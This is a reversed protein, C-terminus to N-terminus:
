KWVCYNVVCLMNWPTNKKCENIAIEIAQYKSNSQGIGWGAQSTAGCEWYASANTVLSFTVIILALLVKKM